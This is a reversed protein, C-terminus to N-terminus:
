HIALRNYYIKENLTFVVIYIGASLNSVDILGNLQQFETVKQGINNYIKLNKVQHGDASLVEVSLTAPNPYLIIAPPKNNLAIVGSICASEVEEQNFCGPANMQINVYGTSDLLYDCISKVHCVALRPNKSITLGTITQKDISDLGYLNPLSDNQIIQISGNITVLNGLSTIDVLRNNNYIRIAGGITTLNNLGSLNQLDFNNSIDIEGGISTIQELGTCNAINWTSVLILDGGINTLNQLGSLSNVSCLVLKLNGGIEALGELGSLSTFGPYYGIELDGGISTLQELGSLDNLDYTSSFILDKEISTIGELSDLSAIDPGHITVKGKLDTCGPYFFHFSDIISQTSFHYNGFPLCPLSIGCTTAIETINMCGPANSYIDVVGNPASLYLCIPQIACEALAGNFSITIDDINVTDLNSLGSINILSPNMDITLDGGISVLNQFGDLNQLSNNYQIILNGGISALNNLGTLNTLITYSTAWDTGGIQLDGGITTLVILGNLNIIDDGKIIVDGEIETCNPYDTQFNDIQSQTTLSIGYPLCSQSYSIYGLLFVIVFTSIIPKM